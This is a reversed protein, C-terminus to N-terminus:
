PRPVLRPVIVAALRPPPLVEVITVPKRPVQGDHEFTTVGTVGRLGRTAQLAARVKAPDPSKARAIAAAVMDVADYGLAAFASDPGRGYAARFLDRFRRVPVTVHGAGLFAHTTYYVNGGTSAAISTLAASDFSDGGMVPQMIGDDRLDQLIAGAEDPGCAVYVMQYRPAGRPDDSDGDGDGHSRLRQVMREASENTHFAESVAVTGGGARWSQEFYRALLRSYELDGNYLLAVSRAKLRRVGYEAAAAAQANDGFSTLFLWRPVDEPLQPSTAGSTVFPIGAGAAVPAAARVQDTDSLGIIASVGDKILEHTVKAVVAPNSDGNRVVLEVRRGFLGGRANIRDVALFAGDLSPVDLPAQSGMLNYVAGIRIPRPSASSTAPSPHGGCAALSLCCAALLVACAVSAFPRPRM